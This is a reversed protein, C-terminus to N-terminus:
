KEMKTVIMYTITAFITVCLLKGFEYPLNFVLLGQWINTISPLKETFYNLFDIQYGRAEFYKVYLPYIVLKMIPIMALATALASCAGAVFVGSIRKKRTQKVFPLKGALAYYISFAIVIFMVDTILNSIEGVYSINGHSIYFLLMHAINKIVATAIGVVPGFFVTAVFEPFISFDIKMFSPLVSFDLRIFALVIASVALCSIIAIRKVLSKAKRSKDHEHHIHRTNKSYQVVKSYDDESQMKSLQAAITPMALVTHNPREERSISPKEDEAKVSDKKEDTKTSEEDDWLYKSKKKEYYKSNSSLYGGNQSKNDDKIYKSSM